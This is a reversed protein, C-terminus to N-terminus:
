LETNLKTIKLFPRIAKRFYLWKKFMFLPSFLTSGEVKLQMEHSYFLISNKLSCPLCRSTNLLFYALLIHSILKSIAPNELSKSSLRLKLCFKMITLLLRTFGPYYLLYERPSLAHNSKSLSNTKIASYSGFNVVGKVM